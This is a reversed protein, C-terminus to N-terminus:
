KQFNLEFFQFFKKKSTLFDKFLAPDRFVSNQTWKSLQGGLGESAVWFSIKLNQGFFDNKEIFNKLKGGSIIELISDLQEM